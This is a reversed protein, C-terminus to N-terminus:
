RTLSILAFVLWGVAQLLGFWFHLRATRGQAQHLQAPRNTRTTLRVLWLAEPFTFLAVLAPMPSVGALALALLTVYGGYVLVMFEVRAGRVGLRVALTNKHAAIDAERDRMNNAHLIAAVTFAIPVGALLATWTLQGTVAYYTGLTMLPGFCWFVAVEGLGLYALPIPGATYAIVVAVGIGGILLLVPRGGLVLILGLIVGGLTSAIAGAKVQDANLQGRSLVMGMGDVKQADTGRKFDVYENIYNSAIQLLLAGVLAILFRAPDFAKDALAAAGGIFLPVYTAPLSRPRAAQYWPQLPAPLLEGLTRRKGGPGRRKRPHTDPESPPPTESRSRTM